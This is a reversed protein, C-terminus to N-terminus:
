KSAVNVIMVVDGAYESMSLRQGSAALASTDHFSPRRELKKRKPPMGRRFQELVRFEVRTPSLRRWRKGCM